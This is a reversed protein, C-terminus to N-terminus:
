CQQCAPILQKLHCHLQLMNGGAVLVKDLTAEVWVNVEVGANHKPGHADGDGHLDRGWFNKAYRERQPLISNLCYTGM